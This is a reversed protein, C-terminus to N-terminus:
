LIRIYWTRRTTGSTNNYPRRLFFDIPSDLFLRTPLNVVTYYVQLSSCPSESRHPELFLVMGNHNSKGRARNVIQRFKKKKKARLFFTKQKRKKRERRQPTFTVRSDVKASTHIFLQFTM